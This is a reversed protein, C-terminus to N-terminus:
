MKGIEIEIDEYKIIENYEKVPTNNNNDTLVSM